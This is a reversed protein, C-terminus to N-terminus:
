LPLLKQMESRSSIKEVLFTASESSYEQIELRLYITQNLMTQALDCQKANEQMKKHEITFQRRESSTSDANRKLGTM